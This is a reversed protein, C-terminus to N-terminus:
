MFAVIWHRYATGSSRDMRLSADVAPPPVGAGRGRGAAAGREGVGGSIEEVLDFVGVRSHRRKSEEREQALQERLERLNPLAAHVRLLVRLLAPAGDQLREAALNGGYVFEEAESQLHRELILECPSVLSSTLRSYLKLHLMVMLTLWRDSPKRTASSSSRSYPPSINLPCLRTHSSGGHSLTCITRNKQFIGPALSGASAVPWFALIRRATVKGTSRSMYSCQVSSYLAASSGALAALIM